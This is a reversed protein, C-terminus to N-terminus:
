KNIGLKQMKDRLTSPKLELLESASNVGSIKWKCQELINTIHKRQIAELSVNENQDKISVRSKQVNSEFGPIVLTEDYSLISAREILNELERINGPWSYAKLKEMADDSIYKIHKAYSKNFKDVFHEVLLPIDEKRKRLPPVLIPFVNLRFYLDERFNKKEIEEKLNRNTAAIVRVDLKKVELGGVVEIEGEQLFRLIKPQMDIPLEGIEDLFLTGGDALEFKGIKDGFAGTFSGKKHGFLESEILERPIASCNVKILPKKNRLSTNHVARALLEKGTGSEGLLLVTASTPAVKEVETLVASFEASGYVMEEYNFVLDLENRLYVNEQELQKRLINLEKNATTLQENAKFAESEALKRETSEVMLSVLNAISTAFEEEERTWIRKPGVHEFCLVGYLDDSVQIIVDLMSTIGMPVLYSKTFSKTVINKRADNVSIIKNKLIGKFYDPNEKATLLAGNEYSKTNLDFLQECKIENKDPNFSWIGVRAVNLTEASLLTIKKFFSKYDSGVLATLELIVNKKLNSKAANEILLNKVKEEESIDKMTGFLAVVENKDNTINGTLFSAMFMEGNKRIFEFQFSPAEGKAVKKNTEAIKEFDELKAFPYPLNLGVLEEIAYGLMKSTANNAFIIKGKPNVIFLGEQMSMVLNDTFDKALKLELEAKKRETVDRAIGLIRGDEQIKASIEVEIESKDKRKFIRTFVIANGELLKKLNAADQVIEGVLFDQIKLSLFEKRTYGLNIYSAKNFNYITGDISYTMIADNAQDILAKYSEDKKKIEAIRTTKEIAVTALSVSFNLERIENDSPTKITKSYIAFTGLVVNNKSIIPLSWCSKLNYEEAIDKYNVWRKDTSIDSVIIPKKLFAATGCSGINKGIALRKIALSYAKPLSPGAELILHIGDDDLLSISGLYGEHISEYNLVLREFIEHLSKNVTILDLIENEHILLQETRKRELVEQVLDLGKQELKQILRKSYLELVEGDSIAESKTNRVENTGKIIGFDLIENVTILVEDYDIPKRLFKAAGLTLGFEEDLKETYTSTYFIFPINQFLKEKKCAQCFLYGDMVPMLIDSIILKVNSNEYLKSLGESGDNAEIVKYGEKELIVKLL